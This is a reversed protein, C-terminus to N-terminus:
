TNHSTNIFYHSMPQTMDQWIKNHDKKFLSNTPSLLMRQFALIFSALQWSQDVYYVDIKSFPFGMVPAKHFKEFLNKRFKASRSLPKQFIVCILKEQRKYFYIRECELFICLYLEPLGQKVVVFQM